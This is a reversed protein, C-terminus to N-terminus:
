YINGSILLNVTIGLIICIILLMIGEFIQVKGKSEEGTSFFILYGSFVFAMAGIYSLSPFYFGKWSVFWINVIIASTGLFLLMGAFIRRISRHFKEQGVSLTHSNMDLHKEKSTSIGDVFLDYEFKIGDTLIEVVCEHLGIKFAHRSGLDFGLPIPDTSLITKGDVRIERKASFYGHQLKVIHKKDDLTISWEKNAM